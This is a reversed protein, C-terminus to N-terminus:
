AIPTAFVSVGDKDVKSPEMQLAAFLQHTEAFYSKMVDAWPPTGCEDKFSMQHQRGSM